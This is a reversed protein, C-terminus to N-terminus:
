KSILALVSIETEVIDTNINIWYISEFASLRTKEIGMHNLYLHKLTKNQLAAPIILIRGKM